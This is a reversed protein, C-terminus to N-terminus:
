RYLVPLCEFSSLSLGLPAPSQYFLARSYAGAMLNDAVSEVRQFDSISLSKLLRGFSLFGGWKRHKQEV